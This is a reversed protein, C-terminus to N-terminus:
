KTNNLTKVAEVFSLNEIKQIYQIANVQKNCPFCHARGDSYLHLSPEDDSHWPCKINKGPRLGVISFIPIHKAKEIMEDSIKSIFSKTSARNFIPKHPEKEKPTILIKRLGSPIPTIQNGNHKYPKGDILSGIGVVYGGDSKIDLGPLFGNMSQIKTKNLYYLHWGNTPTTIGFTSPLMGKVMAASQKGKARVGVKNKKVDVDIVTLGSIIGTAVGINADPTRSWWLKIREPDKSADKFGHSTMPLKTNPKLPFVAWDRQLCFEAFSLLNIRAM